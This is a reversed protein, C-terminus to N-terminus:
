SAVRTKAFQLLKDVRHGDLSQLRKVQLVQDVWLACIQGGFQAVIQQPVETVPTKLLVRLDLVPSPRGRFGIMQSIAKYPTPLSTPPAAASIEKLFSIEIGFAREGAVLRHSQAARGVM